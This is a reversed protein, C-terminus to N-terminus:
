AQAEVYLDAKHRTVAVKLDRYLLAKFLNDWPFSGGHHVKIKLGGGPLDEVDGMLGVISRVVLTLDADPDIVLPPNKTPIPVAM